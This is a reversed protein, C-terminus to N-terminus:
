QTSPNNLKAHNPPNWIAVQNRGAKKANYLSIDAQKVFQEVSTTNAPNLSAVGLSITVHLKGSSTEFPESAVIERLREATQASEEKSTEPLIITFEEGGYRCFHDYARLEKACVNALDRLIQDGVLHGHQDNIKKFHDIDFMILGLPIRLRISRFFETRLLEYFHRHNSLGTLADTIAIKQLQFELNKRKTIDRITILHGLEKDGQKIVSVSVDYYLNSYPTEVAFDTNQTNTKGLLPAIHITPSVVEAVPKGVADGKNTSFIHLATPNIDVVLHKNDVVIVGDVMNDVLVRLAIPSFDFLQYNYITWTYILSAIVLGLPDYNVKLAPILRFSFSINFILPIITGALLGYTQVRHSKSMRFAEVLILYDGVLILVYSYIFHLWYYPGLTWVEDILFPPHEVFQISEIFLHHNDNTVVLVTSVIPVLSLLMITRLTLHRQRGTFDLAFMAWALPSFIVGVMRINIWFKLAEISKAGMGMGVSFTWLSIALLMFSFSASGPVHRFRFVAAALILSIGASVFAIIYFITFQNLAM